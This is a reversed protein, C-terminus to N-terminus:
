KEDEHYSIGVLQAFGLYYHKYPKEWRFIKIGSFGFVGTNYWDRLWFLWFMSFLGNSLNGYLTGNWTIKGNLGNTYVWGEAYSYNPFDHMHGLGILNYFNVPNIINCLIEILSLIFKIIVPIFPIGMAMIFLIWSIIVSPVSVFFTNTTEGSILCFKNGVQDLSM